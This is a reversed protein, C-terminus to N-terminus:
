SEEYRRLRDLLRRASGARESAAAAVADEPEAAPVAPASGAEPVPGNKAIGNESPKAPAAQLAALSTTEARHAPADAGAPEALKDASGNGKIREFLTRQLQRARATAPAQESSPVFKHGAEKAKAARTPLVTVNASPQPPTTASRTLRKMEDRLFAAQRAARENASVLEARLRAVQKQERELDSQIRDIRAKLLAKSERAPLRQDAADGERQIGLEVKLQSIERAQDKIKAELAARGAAADAERGEGAVAGGPRKGGLEVSALDSRLRTIEDSQLALQSRMTVVDEGPDGSLALSAAKLAATPDARLGAVERQFREILSAQERSKTRLQELESRLALEADAGAEAYRRRDRTPAASLAMKLRDIEAAQQGNISRAEEFAAFQMAAARNLEMIHQDRAQLLKRAEDLRAEVKPLRDNITQELVRRANEHEELEGKLAVMDEGTRRISADRRNIEILQRHAALKQREIEKSLRHVKVAYEAKLLDKDARIEAESIPMTQRIRRTTLRVARWWFAPALVLGILVATLFGLAVLLVSEIM